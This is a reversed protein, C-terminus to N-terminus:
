SESTVLGLDPQLVIIDVHITFVIIDVHITINSLLAAPANMKQLAAPSTWSFGAARV